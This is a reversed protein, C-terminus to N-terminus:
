TLDRRNVREPMNSADQRSNESERACIAHLVERFKEEDDLKRRNHLFLIYQELYYKSVGRYKRLWNYLGARNECNNTHVEGRAYEGKTHQVSDHTYGVLGSVLLSITARERRTNCATTRM